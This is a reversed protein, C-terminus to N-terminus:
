GSRRLSIRLIAGSRPKSCRIHVGQALRKPAFRWPALAPIRSGAVTRRHIETTRLGITALGSSSMRKAFRGFAFLRWVPNNAGWPRPESNVAETAQALDVSTGDGLQRTGSPPGDVFASLAGSSLLANWDGVESLERAGIELAGDAAYMTERSAAYNAAVRLETNVVTALSTGLASLVLLSILAIVLTM